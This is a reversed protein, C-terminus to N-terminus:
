KVKAPKKIKSTNVKKVKVKKTTTTKTNKIIDKVETDTLTSVLNIGEKKYTEDKVLKANLMPISGIGNKHEQRYSYVGWNHTSTKTFVEFKDGVKFWDTDEAKDVIVWVGTFEEDGKIRDLDLDYEALQHNVFAHSATSCFSGLCEYMFRNYLTTRNTYENLKKWEYDSLKSETKENNTPVELRFLLRNTNNFNEVLTFETINTQADIIKNNSDAIKFKKDRTHVSVAFTKPIGQEHCNANWAHLINEISIELPHQKM